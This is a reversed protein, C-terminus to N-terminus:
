PARGEFNLSSDEKMRKEINGRIFFNKQLSRIVKESEELDTRAASISDKITPSSEEIIGLVNDLRLAASNLKDYLERKEMLMGITGKQAGLADALKTTATNVNALAQMLDGQPNAVRKTATNVNSLTQMLNGQPNKLNEILRTTNDILEKVDIKGEDLSPIIGGRAIPTANDPGPVIELSSSGIIPQILSIKAGKNIKDAYHRFVNIGVKVRNDPGLDVSFIRGADLGKITVATGVRLGKGEEFYSVYPVYAQLWKQGRAVIVLLIIVIICSLM